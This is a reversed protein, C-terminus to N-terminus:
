HISNYRTKVTLKFHSFHLAHVSEFIGRFHGLFHSSALVYQFYTGPSQGHGNMWVKLVTNQGTVM